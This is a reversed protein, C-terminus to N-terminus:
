ILFSSMQSDWRLCIPFPTEKCYAMEQFVFPPAEPGKSNELLVAALTRTFNVMALVVPKCHTRSHSAPEVGNAFRLCERLRESSQDVSINFQSFAKWRISKQPSQILYLPSVASARSLTKYSLYRSHSGITYRICDLSRHGCGMERFSDRSAIFGVSLWM